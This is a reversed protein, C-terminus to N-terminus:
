GDELAKLTAAMRTNRRSRIYNHNGDGIATGRWTLMFWRSLRPEATRRGSSILGLTAAHLTMKRARPRIVLSRGAVQREKSLNPNALISPGGPAQRIMVFTIVTVIWYLVLSYIVRKIVYRTM